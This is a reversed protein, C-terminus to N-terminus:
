YLLLTDVARLVDEVPTSHALQAAVKNDFVRANMVHLEPAKRGPPIISIHGEGRPPQEREDIPGIIDVTKRDFAEAIYLPGTDASIFIDIQKLLCKLEEITLKSVTDVVQEQHLAQNISDSLDKEKEGGVLFIIAHRQEQLRQALKAFNEPPWEKIKNGAGPAIAIKLQNEYPTLMTKIKEESQVDVFLEKTTNTSTIGLPKLMNLYEQPAYHGMRHPVQTVLFSLLRYKKTMYPSFGGVVKPVIIKRIRSILLQALLSPNPNLLVAVDLCCKKLVSLTLDSAILYEDIHPNGRLVQKNIRDGAVYLQAEPYQEKIARFVPTTCVMDGLKGTQIVLIKM